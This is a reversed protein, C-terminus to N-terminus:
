NLPRPALSNAIANLIQANGAPFQLKALQNRAIWEFGNDPATPELVECAVFHLEVSAHDYHHTVVDYLGIARVSLGSEEKSERIAAAPASEGPEIKGGPFERYGPLSDTPRRTGVLFRDNNEIVAIAIQKIQVM